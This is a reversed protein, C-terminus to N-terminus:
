GYNYARKRLSKIEDGLFRMWEPHAALLELLTANERGLGEGRALQGLKARIEIPPPEGQHGNVEAEFRQLFKFITRGDEHM